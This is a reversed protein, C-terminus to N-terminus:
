LLLSDLDKLISDLHKDIDNYMVCINYVANVPDYVEDITTYTYKIDEVVNKNFTTVTCCGCDITEEGIMEEETYDPNIKLMALYLAHFCPKKIVQRHKIYQKEKIIKKNIYNWIGNTDESVEGKPIKKLKEIKELNSKISIHLFHESNPYFCSASTRGLPGLNKIKDYNERKMTFGADCMRKNTEIPKDPYRDKIISQIMEFNNMHKSKETYMTHYYYVINNSM